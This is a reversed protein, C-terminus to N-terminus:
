AINRTARSRISAASNWICDATAMSGAETGVRLAADTDAPRVYEFVSM